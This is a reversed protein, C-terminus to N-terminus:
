NASPTRNEDADARGAERKVLANVRKLDSLKVSSSM